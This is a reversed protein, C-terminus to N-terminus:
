PIMARPLKDPLSAFRRWHFGSQRNKPSQRAWNAILADASRPSRRSQLITETGDSGNASSAGALGPLAVHGLKGRLELRSRCLPVGHVGSKRRECLRRILGFELRREFLTASIPLGTETRLMRFFGAVYNLLEDASRPEVARRADEVAVRVRAPAQGHVACVPRRDLLVGAALASQARRGPRHDERRVRHGRAPRAPAQRRDERERGRGGDTYLGRARQWLVGRISVFATLVPADQPPTALWTSCGGAGAASSWAARRVHRDAEGGHSVSRRRLHRPSWPAPRCTRTALEVPDGLQHLVEESTLGPALRERHAGDCEMAIQAGHRPTAPPLAEVVRDVDGGDATM